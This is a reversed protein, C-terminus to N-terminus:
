LTSCYEDVCFSLSGVATVQCIIRNSNSGTVVGEVDPIVDLCDAHKAVVRSSSTFLTQAAVRHLGVVSHSIVSVYINLNYFEADVKLSSITRIDCTSFKLYGVKPIMCKSWFHNRIQKGEEM